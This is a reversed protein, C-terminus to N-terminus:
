SQSYTLVKFIFLKKQIIYIQNKLKWLYLISQLFCLLIIVSFQRYLVFDDTVHLLNKIYLFLLM